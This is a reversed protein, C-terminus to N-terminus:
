KHIKVDEYFVENFVVYRAREMQKIIDNTLPKLKGYGDLAYLFMGDGGSCGKWGVKSSINIKGDKRTVPVMVSCDRTCGPPHIKMHFDVNLDSLLLRSQIDPIVRLPTLVANAAATFQTAMDGTFVYKAKEIIPCAPTPTTNSSEWGGRDCGTMWVECMMFEKNKYSKAVGNILEELIKFEFILTQIKVGGHTKQLAVEMSKLGESANTLYTGGDVKFKALLIEEISARDLSFTTTRREAIQALIEKMRNTALANEIRIEKELRAQDLRYIDKLLDVGFSVGPVDPISSDLVKEFVKTFSFTWVSEFDSSEVKVGDLRSFVADFASASNNLMDQNLQLVRTSLDRIKLADERELEFEIGPDAAQALARSSVFCTIIWLLLVTKM